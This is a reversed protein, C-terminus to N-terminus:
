YGYPNYFRSYVDVDYEVGDIVEYYEFLVSNFYKGPFDKLYVTSSSSGVEIKHMEYSKGVELGLVKCHEQQYPYGYDPHAFTAYM